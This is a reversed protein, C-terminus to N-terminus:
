RLTHEEADGTSGVQDQLVDCRWCDPEKFAENVRLCAVQQWASDGKQPVIFGSLLHNINLRVLEVRRVESTDPNISSIRLSTEASGAHSAMSELKSM